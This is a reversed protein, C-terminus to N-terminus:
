KQQDSATSTSRRNGTARTLPRPPNRAANSAAGTRSEGNQPDTVLMVFWARRGDKFRIELFPGDNAQAGANRSAPQCARGLRELAAVLGAFDEAGVVPQSTVDGLDRPRIGRRRLHMALANNLTPGYARTGELLDSRKSDELGSLRFRTVDPERLGLGAALKEVAQLGISRHGNEVLTIWVSSVGSVAALSRVSLGHQDRLERLLCGFASPTGMHLAITVCKCFGTLM